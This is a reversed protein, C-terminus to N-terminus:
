KCVPSAGFDQSELSLIEKLSGIYDRDQNDPIAIQKEPQPKEKSRSAQPRSRRKFHLFRIGIEHREYPHAERKYTSKELRWPNQQGYNSGDAM